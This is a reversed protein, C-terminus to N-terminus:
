SSPRATEIRSVVEALKTRCHHQKGGYSDNDVAVLGEPSVQGFRDVIADVGFNPSCSSWVAGIAVASLAAVVAEPVNSAIASATVTVV